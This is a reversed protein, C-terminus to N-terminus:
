RKKKMPMTPSAPVVIPAGNDFMGKSFHQQLASLVNFLTYYLTLGSPFNNFLMLMFVPMFYLMMKQTPDNGTATMKSMFYSSIAMLIPLLGVGSGYLPLTFPLRFIVDPASLDNIWGFFSAGRLEFESRFVFFLAFFLPMQLLMPLCSGFPNVKHEQYLKMTEEQMKKPNSKHKAKVEDLLPKIRQMEKMSKYSKHTLPFVALKVLVSFIIIIIGYNEIFGHLFLFVWKVLAAFPRIVPWMFGMVGLSTRTMIAKELSPDVPDMAPVTLPGLFLLFRDNIEESNQLPMEMTWSYGPVHKAAGPNLRQAFVDVATASRGQPVVSAAFYKNRVTIWGLNGKFSEGLSEKKMGLSFNQVESGVMVVAESYTADQLTDLETVQLPIEWGLTYAANRLREKLGGVHLGMEIGYTSGNFTFVKEMVRGEDDTFRFALQATEDGTLVLDTDPVPMFDIEAGNINLGDLNFAPNLNSQFGDILSVSTGYYSKLGKLEFSRLQAGRTSFRATYLDTDVTLTREPQPTGEFPLHTVPATNLAAEEPAAVPTAAMTRLTDGPLIGNEEAPTAPMSSADAEVVQETRKQGPEPLGAMKRYHSTNMYLIVASILVFALITRKDM